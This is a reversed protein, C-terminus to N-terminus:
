PTPPVSTRPANPDPLREDLLRAVKDLVATTLDGTAVPQAQSIRSGIGEREIIEAESLKGGDGCAIKLCRRIQDPDVKHEALLADFTGHDLLCELLECLEHNAQGPQDSTKPPLDGGNVTAASLLHERTFAAGRLSIGKAILRIRYVGELSAVFTGEFVGPEVEGLVLTFTTSDPREVFAHVSARHDVPIGYETLYARTTVTAGPTMKSQTVKAAMRLNSRSHATFCYRVGQALRRAWTAASPDVHSLRQNFKKDIELVAHWTGAHAGAGALASPLTFQYFSVGQRIEYKAGIAAAVSPDMLDGDPSEVLFRVAPLDTLLIATADIDAETLIFPIRVVMGPLLQGVPDTVIDNNTVGALVQLFYKTLRFTDDISPSLIGSLMLYGGTGNALAHLAAASVQQATGLGIAYTRSNISASVDAIYPATNELGDTFVIMAKHDYGTVPNLTNRGLSVGAGISTAGQPSLAQISNQVTLLDFPGGTYQTVTVGPYANHDFSVMGVGDGPYRQVLQVFASASQHLVDMRKTTADIGALWDMSGSQDLVLMTAVTPRAITNAVIPVVFDQNTEACHVTVTGTATDGANTGTYSIWIRGVPPISSSIHPIAVASGLMPFTGFATGAPGSVVTPGSTISLNVPDCSVASFVIARAATEDEPVDNFVISPTELTVTAPHTPLTDYCPPQVIAPHKYTRPDLDNEPPAWPRVTPPVGSWPQIAGDLSSPSIGDTGYVTAGDLREPHGVRTQWMAYLRDVNSHLLFVFPDRFSIHAGGMAVFGHMNDHVVKMLSWMTPYDPANVIDDDDSALAPSGNVSRVVTDPPDAPNGSTDRDPSAGPVYYGDNRWPASANQWPPGIPATNTGGHGMFDPTFLDLTGTTGGGLNANAISRPDQTWDWYHMSLRSDVQRLLEEFRNVLARHWPLFEPTGHVHTAQHIEDQKFWWSVHGAPTDTSSGPFFRRNLELYADRLLARESPEVHAINRRVGDGLAM